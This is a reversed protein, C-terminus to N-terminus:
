NRHADTTREEAMAREIEAFVDEVAVGYVACAGAITEFAAVDCGVCHMRHGVLIRAAAPCAAVLDAITTNPTLPAHTSHMDAIWVDLM